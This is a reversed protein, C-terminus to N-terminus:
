GDRVAELDEPTLDARLGVFTPQRLRDDGAGPNTRTTRSARTPRAQGARGLSRVDVVLRPQVWHTGLSDAPPPQVAFPCDERAIERLRPLLLAAQAAGLGSGVRGVFRLGDAEPHGVLLAGLGAGSTSEPRWGGVVVSTTPRHAIKVWNPSRRGPEYVSDVRKSVIGELGRERTAGLLTQGDPYVPPVSARPGPVDLSELLQRRGALPMGTLDHGDLRLVDFVMFTVPRAAALRRALSARAHIRDILGTFSPVGDHLFVVEGDLLVDPHVTALADLEPFRATAEAGTRTGLRVRADHVDALIRMGDWKVEHLWNPGSPPRDTPTALMAQMRGYHGSPPTAVAEGRRRVGAPM